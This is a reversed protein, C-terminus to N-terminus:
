SLVQQVRLKSGVYVSFTPSAGAVNAVQLALTGAASFVFTATLISRYFDTAFSMSDLDGTNYGDGNSSQTEQTPSAGAMQVTDIDMITLSATPGTWRFHAGSGSNADILIWAYVDYTAAAVPFSLGSIAAPTTSVISQGASVAIQPALSDLAQATIASGAYFPQESM